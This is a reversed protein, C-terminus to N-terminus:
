NPKDFTACLPAPLEIQIKSVGRYQLRFVFAHFLKDTYSYTCDTLIKRFIYGGTTYKPFAIAFEPSGIKNKCHPRGANENYHIAALLLRSRMGLFSSHYMKPAFQNVLSHYGEVPSTQGFSSSNPIDKMLTNNLVISELADCAESDPTFWVTKHVTKQLCIDSYVSQIPNDM